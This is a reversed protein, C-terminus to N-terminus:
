TEFTLISKEFCKIFGIYLMPLNFNSRIINPQGYHEKEGFINVFVSFLKPLSKNVMFTFM